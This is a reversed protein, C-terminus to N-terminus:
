LDERLSRYMRVLKQISPKRLKSDQSRSAGNPRVVVVPGGCTKMTEEGRGLVEKGKELRMRLKGERVEKVVVEEEEVLAVTKGGEEFGLETRKERV